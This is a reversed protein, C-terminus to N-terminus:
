RRAPTAPTMTIVLGALAALFMVIFGGYYTLFVAWLSPPAIILGAGCAAAKTHARKRAPQPRPQAQILLAPLDATIAALEAYTRSTLARGTRAVLEDRTLLGLAFADKFTDILQERDADSARLHGRGMAGSAMQDGPGAVVQAEWWRVQISLM